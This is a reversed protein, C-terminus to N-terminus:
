QEGSTAASPSFLPRNSIRDADFAHAFPEWWSDDVVDDETALTDLLAIAAQNHERQAARAAQAAASLAERLRLQDALSLQQALDLVQRLTPTAM